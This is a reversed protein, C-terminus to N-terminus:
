GRRNRWERDDKIEEILVHVFAVLLVLMFLAMVALVIDLIIETM